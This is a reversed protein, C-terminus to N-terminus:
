DITGNNDENVFIEDKVAIEIGRDLRRLLQRVSAGGRRVLVTFCQDADSGPRVPYPLLAALPSGALAM